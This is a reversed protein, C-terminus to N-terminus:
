LKPCLDPTQSHIFAVAIAFAQLASLTPVFNVVYIGKSMNLLKLTPDSKKGNEIFLEFPKSDEEMDAKSCVSDNKLVTLPCGVDWGGCDCHRGSKWRDILSLPGSHKIVPGGHLGAPLLVNLEKHREKHSQVSSAQELFKLGWGGYPEVKSSKYGYDRLLIAASEFNSLLGNTLPELENITQPLFEFQDSNSEGFKHKPNHKLSSRPPLIETLNKSQFSPTDKEKSREGKTDFLVFETEMFKSRDLSVILSSSVTMKGVVHTADSFNVSKNSLNGSTKPLQFIYVYDLSKNAATEVEVPSAVFAEGRLDDSVFEFYPLDSEWVCHILATMSNKSDLVKDIKIMRKEKISTLRFLSAEKLSIRKVMEEISNHMISSPRKVVNGLRVVPSCEVLFEDGNNMSPIIRWVQHNNISFMCEHFSLEHSSLFTRQM